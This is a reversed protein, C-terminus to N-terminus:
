ITAETVTQYEPPLESLSLVVGPHFGHSHKEKHANKKTWTELNM